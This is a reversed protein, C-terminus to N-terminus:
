SIPKEHPGAQDQMLFNQEETDAKNRWGEGVMFM